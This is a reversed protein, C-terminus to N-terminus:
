HHKTVGTSDKGGTTLVRGDIWVSSHSLRAKKITGVKTWQNCGEKYHQYEDSKYGYGTVGGRVVM